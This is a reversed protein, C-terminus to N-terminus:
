GKSILDLQVVPEETGVKFAVTDGDMDRIEVDQEFVYNDNNKVRITYIDGINLEVGTLMGNSSRKTIIDKPDKKNVFEFEIEDLAPSGNKSVIMQSIVGKKKYKEEVPNESGQIKEKVSLTEITEDTKADHLVMFGDLNKVKVLREGFTYGTNDKLTLKYEEDLYLEEGGLMALETTKEVVENPHKVNTFQFTLSDLVPEKDNKVFAPEVTVKTRQEPQNKIKELAKTLDNLYGGVYIPLTEPKALEEKASNVIDRLEKIERTKLVEEAEKIKEQLETKLYNVDIKKVIFVPINEGNYNFTDYNGSTYNVKGDETVFLSVADPKFQWNFQDNKSINVIYDVGNVKSELNLTVIGNKDSRANKLTTIKTRIGSASLEVNEVPNGQEDVVKFHAQTMKVDKDNVKEEKFEITNATTKTIAKNDITNIKGDKDTTFVVNDRLFPKDRKQIRLDYKRNPKLSKTDLVLEGSSNTRAEKVINPINSDFEFLRFPVDAFPKGDKTIVKAVLKDLTVQDTQNSDSKKEQVFIMEIAENTKADHLVIFDDKKQAKVLRESFTYGKNDKLTLKYEENLYLEEGGLMALETTKEIVEAPHKVNTFEFTLGDLVPGKDSAIVVPEVTSKERKEEPKGPNSPEEPKTNPNSPGEPKVDPQGPKLPEEPKVEPKNPAVTGEEVDYSVVVKLNSKDISFEQEVSKRVVATNPLTKIKKALNEKVKDLQAKTLEKTISEGAKLKDVHYITAKQGDLTIKIDVNSIDKTATIEILAGGEHEVVKIGVDRTAEVEIKDKAQVETKVLPQAGSLMSAGIIVSAVGVSIKRISFLEKQKLM